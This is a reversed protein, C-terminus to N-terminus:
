NYYGIESLYTRGESSGNALYDKINDFPKRRRTAILTVYGPRSLDIHHRWETVPTEKQFDKVTAVFLEPNNNAWGFNVERETRSVNDHPM